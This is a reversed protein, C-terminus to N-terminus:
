DWIFSDVITKAAEDTSESGSYNTLHVLCYGYDKVIYYQTTVVDGEDISFTYLVYGQETNSGNGTLEADIGKLQMLLQQLIAERFQAHEESSYRNVGVNISINDPLADEECGEKVYFFKEDTSYNESKVWGEPVTYSGPFETGRETGLSQNEAQEGNRGRGSDELKGQTDATKGFSCGTSVCAMILLIAVFRKM